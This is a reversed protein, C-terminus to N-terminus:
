LPLPKPIEIFIVQSSFHHKQMTLQSRIPSLRKETVTNMDQLYLHLQLSIKAEEAFPEAKTLKRKAPLKKLSACAKLNWQLLIIFWAPQDTWPLSTPQIIESIMM